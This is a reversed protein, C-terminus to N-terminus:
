GKKLCKAKEGAPQQTTEGVSLLQTGCSHEGGVSLGELPQQLVLGGGSPAGSVADAGREFVAALEKDVQVLHGGVREVPWHAASVRSYFTANNMCCLAPFHTWNDWLWTYSFLLSVHPKRIDSWLDTLDVNRYKILVECKERSEEFM